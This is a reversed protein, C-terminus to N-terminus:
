PMDKCISVTKWSTGAWGPM